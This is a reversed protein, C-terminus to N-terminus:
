YKLININYYFIFESAFNYYIDFMGFIKKM